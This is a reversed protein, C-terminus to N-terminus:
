GISPPPSPRSRTRPRRSRCARPFIARKSGGPPLRGARRGPRVLRDALRLGDPDVPRRHDARRAAAGRQVEAPQRALTQLLSSLRPARRERTPNADRLQPDFRAGRVSLHKPRLRAQHGRRNRDASNVRCSRAIKCSASRREASHGQRAPSRVSQRARAHPDARRGRLYSLRKPSTRNLVQMGSPKPFRPDEIPIKRLYDAVIVAIRRRDRQRGPRGGASLESACGPGHERAHGRARNSFWFELREPVAALRLDRGAGDSRGCCPSCRWWVSMCAAAASGARSPVGCRSRARM